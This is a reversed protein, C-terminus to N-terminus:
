CINLWAMALFHKINRLFYWNKQTEKNSCMSNIVVNSSRFVKENLKQIQIKPNIFDHKWTNFLNNVAHKM